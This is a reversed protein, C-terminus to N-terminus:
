KHMPPNLDRCLEVSYRDTDVSRRAIGGSLPSTLKRFYSSDEVSHRQMPMPENHFLSTYHKQKAKTSKTLRMYNPRTDNESTTTSSNSTTMTATTEDYVAESCSDSSWYMMQCSRPFKSSMRTSIDNRRIRVSDHDPTTQDSDTYFNNKRPQQQSLAYRIARARIYAGEHEMQLKSRVEEVTGRNDCWGNESKNTPDFETRNQQPEKPSSQVSQARVRAQVRVLAQM